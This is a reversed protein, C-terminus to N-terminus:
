IKCFFSVQIFTAFIIWYCFDNSCCSFIFLVTKKAKTFEAAVFLAITTKGTAPEGYITCISSEPLGGDLLFDLTIIGTKIKKKALNDEIGAVKVITGDGYKKNIANVTEKLRKNSM